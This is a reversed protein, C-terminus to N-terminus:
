SLHRVFNIKTCIGNVVVKLVDWVMLFSFGLFLGLAGGFEALFSSFPYVLVEKEVMVQKSARILNIMRNELGMTIPEDVIQYERYRCPFLCGTHIPIDTQELKSLEFFKEDNEKLQEVTTCVQRKQESWKDWM